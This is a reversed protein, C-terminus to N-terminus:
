SYINFQLIPITLESNYHVLEAPVNTPIRASRTEQESFTLAFKLQFVFLILQRQKMM